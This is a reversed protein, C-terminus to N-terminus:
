RDRGGCGGERRATGGALHDAREEGAPQDPLLHRFVMGLRVGPQVGEPAVELVAAPHQEQDGGGAKLGDTNRGPSARGSTSPPLHRWRAWQRRLPPQLAQRGAPAARQPACLAGRACSGRRFWAPPAPRSASAALPAVIASITSAVPQCRVRHATCERARQLLPEPQDDGGLLDFAATPDIAEFM